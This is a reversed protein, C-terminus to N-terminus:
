LQAEKRSKSADVRLIVMATPNGRVAEVAGGELGKQARSRDFRLRGRRSLNVAAVTECFVPEEYPHRTESIEEQSISDWRSSLCRM